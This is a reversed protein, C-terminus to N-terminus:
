LFRPIFQFDKKYVKMRTSSENPNIFAFTGKKEFDDDTV